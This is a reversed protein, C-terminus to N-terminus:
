IPRAVQLWLECVQTLLFKQLDPVFSQLAALSCLTAKAFFIDALKLHIITHTLLFSCLIVLICFPPFYNSKHLLYRDHMTFSWGVRLFQVPWLHVKPPGAFASQSTLTQHQLVIRHCNFLIM